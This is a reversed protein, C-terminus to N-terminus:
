LTEIRHATLWIDLQNFRSILESQYQTFFARNEPTDNTDVFIRVLEDRYITGEHRWRGHLVQTEWTAAGFREELEPITQSILEPPVPRGDNFRLPLLM